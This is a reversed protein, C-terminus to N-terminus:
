SDNHAPRDPSRIGTPALYEPGTWVTGPAWGAEWLIPVTDRERPHLLRPTANVVWECKASLKFVSYLQVEVGERLM